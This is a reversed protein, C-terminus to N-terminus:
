RRRRRPREALKDVPGWMGKQALHALKKQEAEARKEAADISAKVRRALARERAALHKEGAKVARALKKQEAAFDSTAKALAKQVEAGVQHQL